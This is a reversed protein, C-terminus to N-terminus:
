HGRVQAGLNSFGVTGVERCNMIHLMFTWATSLKVKYAGEGTLAQLPMGNALSGSPDVHLDGLKM